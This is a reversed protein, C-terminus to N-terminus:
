QLWLFTLFDLWTSLEWALSLVDNLKGVLTGLDQSSLWNDDLLNSWWDLDYSVDMALIHIKHSEEVDPISRKVVSIDMSKIVKEQTVINVFALVTKLNYAKQEGKLKFIWFLNHEKSTVVLIFM